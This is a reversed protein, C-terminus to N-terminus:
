FCEVWKGVVFMTVIQGQHLDSQKVEYNFGRVCLPKILVRTRNGISLYVKTDSRANSVFRTLRVAFINTPITDIQLYVTGNQYLCDYIKINNVDAFGTTALALVVMVYIVIISYCMRLYYSQTTRVHSYGRGRVQM